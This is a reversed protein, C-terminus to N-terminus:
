LKTPGVNSHEAFAKKWGAKAVAAASSQPLPLDGGFEPQGAAREEITPIRPTAAIAAAAKAMTIVSVATEVSANASILVDASAAFEPGFIARIVSASAAASLLPAPAIDAAPSPTAVAQLREIIMEASLDSEDLLSRALERNQHFFGSHLVAQWRITEPPKPM